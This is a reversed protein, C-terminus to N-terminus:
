YLARALWVNEVVAVGHEPRAKEKIGSPWLGAGKAVVTPADMVKPDYKFAVALHVPNTIVVDATACQRDDKLQGTVESTAKHTGAGGPGGEAQRSEEKLEQKTMKISQEFEWRQYMYDFLALVLLCLGIWLALRFVLMGTHVSAQAPGIQM